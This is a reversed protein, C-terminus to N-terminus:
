LTIIESASNNDLFLHWDPHKKLMTAPVTNTLRRSLTNKVADAKVLHPVVSIITGCQMIQWVSMSVAKDPVEEMNKFWGENVQQMRCEENLRVVIYSERTNFDAPPDNFALHGNEGIGVFAVDIIHERIIRGLRKCEVDPDDEGNVYIFSRLQVKGAFREKLYKRFSAPHTVPLGIYEDLHFSTVKQWDIDEKVLAELMQFQSAGTAVIISAEGKERIAKRILGAGNAAAKKGLEERSDSIIIEM